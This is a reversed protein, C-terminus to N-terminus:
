EDLRVGSGPVTIKSPKPRKPEPKKALHRFFRSEYDLDPYQVLELPCTRNAYRGKKPDHGQGRIQAFLYLNEDEDENPERCYFYLKGDSKDAFELDRIKLTM